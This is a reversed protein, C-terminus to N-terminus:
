KEIVMKRIENSKWKVKKIRKLQLKKYTQNIM